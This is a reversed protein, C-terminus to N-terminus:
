THIVQVGKRRLFDETKDIKEKEPAAINRDALPYSLGLSEFKGRGFEHYPLIELPLPRELGALFEAMASLNEEDDNIGPILPFRIVLSAGSSAARRINELILSNDVGTAERHRRSDMLKIDALIHRVYPLIAEATEPPAFFSTEVATDLGYDEKARKLLALSFGPSSLPEGGSLTLGGGSRRYFAADKRVEELVEAVTMRGGFIKLAGSPCVGACFGCSGCRDRAIRVGGEEWFSLAGKPCAGACRRCKKCLAANYSLVPSANMGEPNACWPCRLPCGNLFVITRIGPGDHISYRQINFILGTQEERFVGM